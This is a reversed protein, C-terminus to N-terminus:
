GKPTSPSRTRRCRAGGDIAASVLELNRGDLRLDHPADGARAPNARFAIRARVRTAEPHLSFALEVREALYAPPRYDALRVSRAEADERM